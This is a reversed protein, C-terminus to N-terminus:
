ATCSLSLINRPLLKFTLGIYGPRLDSLCGRVPAIPQVWVYWSALTSRVCPDLGHRVEWAVMHCAETRRAEEHTSHDGEPIHDEVEVHLIDLHIDLDDARNHATNIGILQLRPHRQVSFFIM